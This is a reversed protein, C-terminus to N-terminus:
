CAGRLEKLNEIKMEPGRCLITILSIVLFNNENTKLPIRIIRDSFKKVNTYCPILINRGHGHIM